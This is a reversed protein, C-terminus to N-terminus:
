SAGGLLQKSRNSFSRRVPCAENSRERAYMVKCLESLVSILEAYVAAGFDVVGHGLFTAGDEKVDGNAIV